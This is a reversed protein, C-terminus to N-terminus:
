VIIYHLISHLPLVRPPCSHYYTITIYRESGALSRFSPVGAAVLVNANQLQVALFSPCPDDDAGGNGVSSNKGSM